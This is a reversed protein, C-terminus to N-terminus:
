DCRIVHEVLGEEKQEASACSPVVYKRWKRAAIGEHFLYDIELPTRGKTEPACYYVWLLSIVTGGAYVFAVKPGLGASTYLYPATFSVLWLSSYLTVISISMIKNQNPGVALERTIQYTVPGQGFNYACIVAYSFIVILYKSATNLEHQSGIGGVILYALFIVSTSILLNIRRRLANGTLVAVAVAIVQLIMTILSVTFPQSVGIEEAFVVGYNYFFIIGCIQQALMGGAAWITKRREIPNTLLTLWSSSEAQQEEYRKMSQLFQIEYDIDFQPDSRHIRQLSAKAKDEQNRSIYWTPSEPVFPLWCILVLPLIVLAGMPLKYALTSHLSNSGQTLGAAVLQSCSQLFQYMMLAPGRVKLPAVQGHLTLFNSCEAIFNLYCSVEGMYLLSTVTFNGVGSGILLRGVVIIAEYQTDAVQCIGGSLVCISALWLAAKRGFRDNVPGSLLAGLVDGIYISSTTLSQFSTALVMKGTTKEIHNGFHNKFEQMGLIGSYYTNDFGFVLSGIASVTCYILAWKHSKFDLNLDLM